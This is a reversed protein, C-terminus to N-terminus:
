PRPVALSDCFRSLDILVNGVRESYCTPRSSDKRAAFGEGLKSQLAPSRTQPSGSM